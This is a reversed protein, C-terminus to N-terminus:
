VIQICSCSSLARRVFSWVANAQAVRGKSALEHEKVALDGRQHQNCRQDGAVRHRKPVQSTASVGARARFDTTKRRIKRTRM